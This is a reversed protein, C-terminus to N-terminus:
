NIVSLINKKKLKIMQNGENSHPIVHKEKPLKTLSM